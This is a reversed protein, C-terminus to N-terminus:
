SGATALQLEPPPKGNSSADPLPAPVTAAADQWAGLVTTTFDFGLSQLVKANVVVPEGDREVNWSIMNEVVMDFMKFILGTDLEGLLELGKSPDFGGEPIADVMAIMDAIPMPGMVIEIGEWEPEEFLLKYHKELKAIDFGM